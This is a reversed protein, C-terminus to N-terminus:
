NNAKKVWVGKKMLTRGDCYFRQHIHNWRVVSGVIYTHDNDNIDYVEVGEILGLEKRYEELVYIWEEQSLRILSEKAVSNCACRKNTQSYAYSFWNGGEDIGYGYLCGNVESEVFFVRGSSPHKWASGEYVISNKSNPTMTGQFDESTRLKLESLEEFVDLKDKEVEFVVDVRNGSNQKRTYKELGLHSSNVLKSNTILLAYMVKSMKVNSIPLKCYGYITEKKM